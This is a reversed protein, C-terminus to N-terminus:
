MVDINDLTTVGPVSKAGVFIHVFLYGHSGHATLMSHDLLVTLNEMSWHILDIGVFDLEGTIIIAAGQYGVVCVGGIINDDLSDTVISNVKTSLCDCTICDNLLLSLSLYLSLM